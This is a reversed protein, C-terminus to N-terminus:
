KGFWKKYYFESLCFIIISILFVILFGKYSFHSNIKQLLVETKASGMIYDYIGIIVGLLVALFSVINVIRLFVKFFIMM